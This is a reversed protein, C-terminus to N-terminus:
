IEWKSVITPWPQPTIAHPQRTIFVPLPQQYESIKRSQDNIGSIALLNGFKM